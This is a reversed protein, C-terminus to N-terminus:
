LFDGVVVGVVVPAPSFFYPRKLPQRLTAGEATLTAACHGSKGLASM